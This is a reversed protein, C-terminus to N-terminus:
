KNRIYCLENITVRWEGKYKVVYMSLEEGYKMNLKVFYAETISDIDVYDTIDDENAMDGTCYSIIATIVAKKDDSDSMDYKTTSVVEIQANKWAEIEDASKIRKWMNLAESYYDSMSNIQPIEEGWKESLIEGLANYGEIETLGIKETRIKVATSPDILSYKDAGAFDMKYWTKYYALVTEEMTLQKKEPAKYPKTDNDKAGSRSGAFVVAFVVALIVILAAAGGIIGILMKKSKPPSTQVPVAYQSQMYTQPQVQTQVQSQVQQVATQNENVSKQIPNSVATGCYRCFLAGDENQNGCKQCFM